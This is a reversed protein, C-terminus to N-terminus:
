AILKFGFGGARADTVSHQECTVLKACVLFWRFNM